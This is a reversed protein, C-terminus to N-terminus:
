TGEVRARYQTQLWLARVEARRLDRYGITGTAIVEHPPEPDYRLGLGGARVWLDTGPLVHLTSSQVIGPDLDIAFSLGEFFDDV